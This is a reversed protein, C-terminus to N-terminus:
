SFPETFSSHSSCSGPRARWTCRCCSRPEPAVALQTALSFLPMVVVLFVGLVAARWGGQADRRRESEEYIQVAMLLELLFISTPLLWSLTSASGPAGLLSVAFWEATPAALLWEVIFIAVLVAPACSRSPRRPLGDM